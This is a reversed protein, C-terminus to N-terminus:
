GPRNKEAELIATLRARFAYLASKVDDSQQNRHASEIEEDLEALLHEVIENRPPAVTKNATGTLKALDKDRMLMEIEADLAGSKFLNDLREERHPRSLNFADHSWQARASNNKAEAIVAEHRLVSLEDARKAERLKRDRELRNIEMQHRHQARDDEIIDDRDRLYRALKRDRELSADALAGQAEAYLTRAQLEETNRQVTNKNLRAVFGSVVKGLLSQDGISEHVRDVPSPAIASKYRAPLNDNSM